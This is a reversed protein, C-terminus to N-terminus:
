HSKQLAKQRTGVGQFFSFSASLFRGISNAGAVEQRMSEIAGHRNMM